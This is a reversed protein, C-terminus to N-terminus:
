FDSASGAPLHEAVELTMSLDFQDGVSFRQGLDVAKYTIEPDSMQEQRNWPGDLGVTREAGKERWAALWEGRGCGVDLVSRPRIFHWLYGVFIQAANRSGERCASYWTDDYIGLEEQAPTTLGDVNTVDRSHMM